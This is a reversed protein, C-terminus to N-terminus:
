LQSCKGIEINPTDGGEESLRNNPTIEVYGALYSRIYRLNLTNFKFDGFIGDCFLFGYKNPLQKCTAEPFGEPKGFEVVVYQWAPNTSPKIILRQESANFRANQWRKSAIDYKFGTAM